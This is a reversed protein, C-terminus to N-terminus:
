FPDMPLSARGASHLGKSPTSTKETRDIGRYRVTRNRITGRIVKTRIRNQKDSSVGM